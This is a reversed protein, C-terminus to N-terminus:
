VLPKIQFRKVLVPEILDIDNINRAKFEELIRLFIRGILISDGLADHRRLDKYYINYYKILYDTWVIERIEPHLYSFLAKTDLCSNQIM